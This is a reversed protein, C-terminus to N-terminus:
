GPRAEEYNLNFNLYYRIEKAGQACQCVGVQSPYTMELWNKDLESPADLFQAM